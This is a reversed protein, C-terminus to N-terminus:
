SPLASNGRRTVRIRRAGSEVAEISVFITDVPAARWRDPWEVALVAGESLEDLGLDDVEPPSLRYLDVHQMPVPGRYEQIITFTPSSVGAEDCGLGQAIGRAFATKGAGLQGELLVVDGPALRRGLERGAAITEEESASRLEHFNVTSVAHPV